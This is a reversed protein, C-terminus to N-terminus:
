AVGERRMPLTFQLVAGHPAYATAWLRGAHAEIISRSIALGMGLGHPKTTYFAEFLRDFSQPDFGPGSDRVAVLVETAAVFESSVWLERPGAGVGSMAEIANMLLNLLVQQLQIRDGMILPVDGALHTELAVGNRQVESRVLAIVDRITDNLDLWDKQPAKQALNRIRRITEAARHGDAIILAPSQRAEELNSTALWRVCASANNVVAGLPQNIEHAISATLEGLTAVRTVHALEAQAKQLAEEARQREAIDRAVGRYGSFRGEADFVPRGSITPDFLTGAAVTADIWLGCKGQAFLALNENYGLEAANPPGFDKLMARYWLLAAKWEQTDIQPRWTADFRRGGHGNVVTSVLAVNEGWGPKGRLCAGFVGGASDHMAKAAALIDQYTPNAPLSAGAKELL